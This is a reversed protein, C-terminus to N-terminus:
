PQKWGIGQRKFMPQHFESLTSLCMTCREYWSDIGEYGMGFMGQILM